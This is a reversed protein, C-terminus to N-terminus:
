LCVRGMVRPLGIGEFPLYTGRGRTAIERLDGCHIAGRIIEAQGAMFRSLAQRLRLGRRRPRSSIMVGFGPLAIMDPWVSRMADTPGLRNTTMSARTVTNAVNRSRIAPASTVPLLAAM